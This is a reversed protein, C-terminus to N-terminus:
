ARGCYMGLRIVKVVAQVSVQDEEGELAKGEM